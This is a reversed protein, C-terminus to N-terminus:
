IFNRLHYSCDYFYCSYMIESSYLFWNRKAKGPKQHSWFCSILKFLLPYWKSPIAKLKPRITLFVKWVPSESEFRDYLIVSSNLSFVMVKPLTMSRMEKICWEESCRNYIISHIFVLYFPFMKMKGRKTLLRVLSVSRILEPIQKGTQSSRGFCPVSTM